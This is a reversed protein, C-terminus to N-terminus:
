IGLIIKQQLGCEGKLKLAQLYNSYYVMLGFLTLPKVFTLFVGLYQVGGKLCTVLQELTTFSTDVCGVGDQFAFQMQSFYGKQSAFQELRNVIIMEYIKSITPFLTIGRYNDKNNAKTGKGKFLPLMIGTKLIQCVSGSEFFGRYLCFLAEWLPPGAYCIHEYDIPISAVGPKLRWCVHAVEYKPPECLAGLPDEDFNSSDSPTDLSEFDDAWM